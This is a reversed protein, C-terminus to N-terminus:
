NCQVREAGARRLADIAQPARAPPVPIGVLFAGAEIEDAPIDLDVKWWGLSALTGLLSGLATGAGLGQLATLAPGAAVVGAGPIASLLLGVAAGTAAGTAVGAPVTSRRDVSFEKLSDGERALVSIADDPFRAEVLAEVARKADAPSRCVATVQRTAQM